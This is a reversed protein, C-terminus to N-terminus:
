SPPLDKWLPRRDTNPNRPAQGSGPCVARLPPVEDHTPILANYLLSEYAFLQGCHPCMLKDVYGDPPQLEGM